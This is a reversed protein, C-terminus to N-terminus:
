HDGTTADELVVQPPTGTLPLTFQVATGGGPRNEAWMRGGHAAVIDRCITLGLGTGSPMAAGPVRYFKDFICEEAGLPLGPGRDAVEVIVTDETAWAALTIPSGPPTYKVANDLLNVLVQEILV